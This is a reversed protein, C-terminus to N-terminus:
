GVQKEWFAPQLMLWQESYERVYKELIRAFQMLAQDYDAGVWIPEEVCLRIKGEATRIAFIPIIPSGTVAALKIPGLPLEIQGHLFPVRRGKQGPLVRDGQLLVAEDALLADRLRIWVQWGEDLAAELVGLRQHLQSRLREFESFEDRRFVVHIKPEYWRLAVVGVEFSGIHATVIIAGKKLARTRLFTEHNQISEIRRGIEEPTAALAAGIDCCFIYFNEIVAKALRERQAPTSQPGLIGRANALTGRRMFRSYRFALWCFFGRSAVLIRPARAAVRFFNRLWFRAAARRFRTSDVPRDM